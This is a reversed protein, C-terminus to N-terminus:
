NASTRSRPRSRERSLEFWVSKGAGQRDVGWARAISDVLVLGRGGPADVNHRRRVPQQTSGDHVEIRVCEEDVRVVVSITPRAHVLANTVLESVGLRADERCGEVGRGRLVEDVFQRARPM